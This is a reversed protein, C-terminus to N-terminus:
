EGHEQKRGGDLTFGGQSGFECPLAAEIAVKSDLALAM